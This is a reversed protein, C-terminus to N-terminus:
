RQLHASAWGVDSGRSRVTPLTPELGGEYGWDILEFDNLVSIKEICGDLPGYCRFVVFFGETPGTKNKSKGEPMEAGFYVDVSGDANVEPDCLRSVTIKDGSPLLSRSVPDYATVAWFRKVPPNTPV